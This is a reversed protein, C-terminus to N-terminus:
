IGDRTVLGDTTSNWVVYTEGDASESLVATATNRTATAFAISVAASIAQTKTPFDALRQSRYRIGWKGDGAQYILYDDEAVSGEATPSYNSGLTIVTM